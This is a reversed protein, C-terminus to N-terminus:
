YLNGILIVHRPLYRPFTCNQQLTYVFNFTRVYQSDSFLYIFLYYHEYWNLGMADFSAVGHM